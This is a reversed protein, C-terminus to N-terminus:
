KERFFDTDKQARDDVYVDAYPKGMFLEDYRVGWEALQQETLEEWDMGTEAGRATAIVVRHGEKHLANVQAIRHHMPKAKKYNGASTECLTGDLDFCYTKM